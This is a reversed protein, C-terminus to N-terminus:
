AARKRTHRLKERLSHLAIYLGSSAKYSESSKIRWITPQSCGCKDAIAQDSLGHAAIEKVIENATDM